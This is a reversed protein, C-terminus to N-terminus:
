LPLYTIHILNHARHLFTISFDCRLWDTRQWQPQSHYGADRVIQELM